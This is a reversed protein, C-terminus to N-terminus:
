KMAENILVAPHKSEKGTGDMIQHRCSFGHACIPEDRKIERVMPFLGLKGIDMSLEYNDHEYGFSGAMGCCGTPMTVPQYGAWSLASVTAEMGIQAKAHCHGHVHVVGNDPKGPFSRSETQQNVYEEFTYTQDALQRASDLWEDDCLDLTEDRFTLIESPEIGVIDLGEKAFPILKELNQHITKKAQTLMGRSIQTRGSNRPGIAIVSYGIKELVEVANRAVDPENYNTFYDVVLVVRPKNTMQFVVDNRHRRYWIKFPENAIHPIPRRTDFGILQQMLDKVPGTRSINNGAAPWKSALPLYLDPRGYFWDALSKGNRKHWGNLFEAKMKAMDVNAPCETKCAKCSLCLKLAEKIERSNYAEEQRGAFIQRFVNARGRTSDKEELTAMYSPCMTGGGSAKKRCVGAGNCQEAAEAFSGEQRWNFATPVQPSTYQPHFRLDTDIPEPNVIKGPNFRNEPDWISKVKSLLNIMEDGLVRNLNHSRARGDGHEGSLSGRYSKVLDAVDNSMAKMNELGTESKLNLVPRLHLEGVSAHAYFICHTQYKDLIKRFDRIYDPLDEVRVATDEVFTPSKSDSSLGMLLGLGAKRLEWVRRMKDPDEYIPFAYGRKQSKLKEKLTQARERLNEIDDGEFEIILICKPKGEIFFRNKRQEVNGETAELIVDDALEVASPEHKVAEVTAEMAEDLSEFQPILLIKQSAVPELNLTAQSILALTGESGCLLECLNFPRGGKTIPDMQCLLDIAYGSNRRLIDPHPFSDRIQDKHNCLLDVMKRYIDGELNRQKRKQKLEEPTLPGFTAVSGDSLVADLSKVHQRTTKYKISFSGASNNGIMGGLMCRNTTSTDPGFFLNYKAAEHNLEDRIVGPQVTASQNNPDVKLIQNMHRSVDMIVGDGTAQGALSTGAARPTISFHEKNARDILQRLDEASEPFCVGSPLEEYMSADNAYLRRTLEDTQIKLSM